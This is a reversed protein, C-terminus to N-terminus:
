RWTKGGTGKKKLEDVEDPVTQSRKWGPISDLAKLMDELLGM